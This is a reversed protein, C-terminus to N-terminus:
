ELYGLARLREELVREEAPTYVATAESPSPAGPREAASGASLGFLELVGAGLEALKVDPGPGAPHGAGIWAYLGHLRHTGNMGIGKAGAYDSPAIRWVAAGGRGGSRAVATTYGDELELDLVLDPARAALPGGGYLEARRRVRSVIRAGTEPDRWADLAAAIRVCIEDYDRPAM